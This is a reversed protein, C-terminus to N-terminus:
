FVSLGVAALVLFVVHTTLLNQRVASARVSQHVTCRRHVATFRFASYPETTGDQPSVSCCTRTQHQSGPVIHLWSLKSTSWSRTCLQWSHGRWLEWWSLGKESDYSHILSANLYVLKVSCATFTTVDHWLVDYISIEDTPKSSVSGTLIQNQTRGSYVSLLIVTQLNEETDDRSRVSMISTQSPQWQDSMIKPSRHSRSCLFVRYQDQELQHLQIYWRWSQKSAKIIKEGTRRGFLHLLTDQLSVVCSWVSVRDSIDSRHDTARQHPSPGKKKLGTSMNQAKTARRGSQADARGQNMGGTRRQPTREDTCVTSRTLGKEPRREDWGQTKRWRRDNTWFHQKLCTDRSRTKRGGGKWNTGTLSEQNQGESAESWTCRSNQINNCRQVPNQILLKISTLQSCLSRISGRLCSWMLRKSTHSEM